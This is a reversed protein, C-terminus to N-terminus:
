LLLVRCLYMQVNKRVFIKKFNVKFVHTIYVVTIVCDQNRELVSACRCHSIIEFVSSNHWPRIDRLSCRVLIWSPRNTACWGFACCVPSVPTVCQRINELEYFMLELCFKPRLHDCRWWFNRSHFIGNPHFLIILLKCWYVSMRTQLEAYSTLLETSSVKSGTAVLDVLIFQCRQYKTAVYDFTWLVIIDSM